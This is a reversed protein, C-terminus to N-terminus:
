PAKGWQIQVGIDGAAARRLLSGRVRGAAGAAERLYKSGEEAASKKILSEYKKAESLMFSAMKRVGGAAAANNAPQVLANKPCCLTRILPHNAPLKWTKITWYFTGTASVGISPLATGQWGFEFGYPLKRPGFFDIPNATFGTIYAGLAAAAGLAYATAGGVGGGFTANFFWKTYTKAIPGPLNWVFGIGLTAAFNFGPTIGLSIAPGGGFYAFLGHELSRCNVLYVVGGVFNLDIGFIGPVIPIVTGSVNLLGADIYIADSGIGRVALQAAAQLGFPDSWTVPSNGVYGFLNADGEGYGVPDRSVWRGLRPHYWRNRVQLLHTEYDWRYGAYRYEFDYEYAGPTYDAELTTSHGYADYDFRRVVSGSTGVIAVVNFNADQLAYHRQNLTGNPPSSTDQDRLVLEDIYRTGWVYQKNLLWDVGSTRSKHDEQGGLL